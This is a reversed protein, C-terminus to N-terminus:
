WGGGVYGVIVVLEGIGFVDFGCCVGFDVDVVWYMYFECVVDLLVDWVYEGGVEFVCYFLGVFEIEGVVL